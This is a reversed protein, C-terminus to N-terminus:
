KLFKPKIEKWCKPCIDKNEAEKDTKEEWVAINFYNGEIIKECRDCFKKNM